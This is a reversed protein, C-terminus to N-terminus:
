ECPGKGPTGRNVPIEMTISISRTTNTDQTGTPTAASFGSGGATTHGSGGATAHDSGGQAGGQPAAGEAYASRNRMVELEHTPKIAPLVASGEDPENPLQHAEGTPPLLQALENVRPDTATSVAGTSATM